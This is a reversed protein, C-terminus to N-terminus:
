GAGAAARRPVPLTSDRPAAVVDLTSAGFATCMAELVGIMRDELGSGEYRPAIALVALHGRTGDINLLTCAALGGEPDDLVLVHQGPQEATAALHMRHQSDPRAALLREIAPLDEPTSTRITPQTTTPM